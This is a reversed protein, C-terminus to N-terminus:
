KKERRIDFLSIDNFKDLGPFNWAVKTTVGTSTGPTFSYWM